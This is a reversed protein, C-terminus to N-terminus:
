QPAPQFGHLEPVLIGNVGYSPGLFRGVVLAMVAGGPVIKM